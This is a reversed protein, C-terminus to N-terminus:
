CMALLMQWFSHTITYWNGSWQAFYVIGISNTQCGISSIATSQSLSFTTIFGIYRSSHCYYYYYHLTHVHFFTNSLLTHTWNENYFSVWMERDNKRWIPIYYWIRILFQSKQSRMQIEYMVVQSCSCFLTSSLFLSRVYVMRMRNFANTKFSSIKLLCHFLKIVWNSDGEFQLEVLLINFEFVSQVTSLPCHVYTTSPPSQSHTRM